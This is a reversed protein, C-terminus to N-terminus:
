KKEGCLDEYFTECYSKKSQSNKRKDKFKAGCEECKWFYQTAEFTTTKEWSKFTRKNESEKFKDRCANYSCKIEKDGDFRVFTLDNKLKPAKKQKM